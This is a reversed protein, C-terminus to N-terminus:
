STPTQGYLCLPDSYGVFYRQYGKVLLNDTIFDVEMSMEFPERELFLLGDITTQIFWAFSSTLFDLVEYKDPLSGTAQLASIDNDGTGPRLPTHILRAAVWELQPPVLLRRGRAFIRKGAQDKFNTRVNTLSQLLSGENLDQQTSTTNAITGGDIPHATSLLAVGDGGVNPNYTTATNLVNAAYIEEAQEFSQQLDLNSAPFQAEYLNDAIAKRTIAYGLGVEFSEHNYIFRQGAQNDMATAGGEFKLQPLSLMRVVATREVGMKSVGRQFVKAWQRPIMKYRGEIGRLGPRTLDFLAAVNVAM